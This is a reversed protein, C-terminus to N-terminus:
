GLMRGNSKVWLWMAHHRGRSRGPFFDRGQWAAGWWPAAAAALGLEGRGVRRRPGPSESGLVLSGGHDRQPDLEQLYMYYVNYVTQHLFVSSQNMVAAEHVYRSQPKRAVAEKKRRMIRTSQKSAALRFCVFSLKCLTCM